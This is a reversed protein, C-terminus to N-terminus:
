VHGIKNSADNFKILAAMFEFESSKPQYRKLADDPRGLLWEYEDSFFSLDIKRIVVAYFLKFLIVYKILSEM